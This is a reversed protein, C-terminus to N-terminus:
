IILKHLVRSQKMRWDSTQNMRRDFLFLMVDKTKKHVQKSKERLSGNKIHRM